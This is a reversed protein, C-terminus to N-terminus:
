GAALRKAARLAFYSLVGDAGARKFCALSELMLRDGDM